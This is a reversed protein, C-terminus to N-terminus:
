RSTDPISIRTDTVSYTWFLIRAIRWCCISGLEAESMGSGGGGVSSLSGDIAADAAAADGGVETSASGGNFVASSFTGPAYWFM